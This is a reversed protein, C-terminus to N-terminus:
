GEVRFNTELSAAASLLPWSSDSSSSWSVTPLMSAALKLRLSLGMALLRSLM